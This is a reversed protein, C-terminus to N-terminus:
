QKRKFELTGKKGWLVLTNNNLKWNTLNAIASLYYNELDIGEPPPMMRTVGMNKNMVLSNDPKILADTFFSNYATGALKGNSIKLTFVQKNKQYKDNLKSVDQGVFKVLQWDANISNQQITVNKNKINDNNTNTNKSINNTCATFSLLVTASLLIKKLM